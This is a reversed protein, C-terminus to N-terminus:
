HWTRCRKVATSSTSVARTEADPAVAKGQYELIDRDVENVM